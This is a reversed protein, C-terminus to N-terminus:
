FKYPCIVDCLFANPRMLVWSSEYLLILVLLSGYPGMFDM